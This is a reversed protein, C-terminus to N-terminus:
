AAAEQSESRTSSPAGAVDAAMSTFTDPFIFQFPDPTAAQIAFILPLEAEASKKWPIVVNDSLLVRPAWFAWTEGGDVAEIYLARMDLTSPDPPHYVQPPGADITGGGLALQLTDLNAQMLAFKVSKPAETTLMRLTDFSQWGKIPTTTKGFTFEVGDETAYGL